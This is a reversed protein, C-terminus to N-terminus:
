ALWSSDYNRSLKAADPCSLWGYCRCMRCSLLVHSAMACLHHAAPQLQELKPTLEDFTYAQTTSCRIPIAGTIVVADGRGTLVDEKILPQMAIIGDLPPLRSGCLVVCGLQGKRNRLSLFVLTVMLHTFLSHPSAGCRQSLMRLTQLSLHPRGHRSVPLLLEYLSTM